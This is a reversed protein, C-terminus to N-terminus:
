YYVPMEYWQAPIDRGLRPYINRLHEEFAMFDRLVPLNVVSALFQLDALSHSLHPATTAGAELLGEARTWALSEEATDRSLSGGGVFSVMDPPVVANAIDQAVHDDLGQRQLRAATAATLDVVREQPGSLAGLRRVAGLSTPVTFSLLKM